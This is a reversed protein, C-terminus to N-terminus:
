GSGRTRRSYDTRGCRPALLRHCPLRPVPFFLPVPIRQLVDPRHKEDQRRQDVAGGAQGNGLTQTKECDHSAALGLHTKADDRHGTITAIAVRVPKTPKVLSRDMRGAVSYTEGRTEAHERQHHVGHQRLGTRSRRGTM